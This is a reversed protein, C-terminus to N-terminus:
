CPDMNTSWEDKWCDKLPLGLLWRLSRKQTTIARTALKQTDSLRFTQSPDTSPSITPDALLPFVFESETPKFFARVLGDLVEIDYDIESPAM